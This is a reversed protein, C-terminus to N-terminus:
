LLGGVSASGSQRPNLTMGGSVDIVSGTMRGAAESILYNVARAVDTPAGVGGLVSLGGMYALTQANRFAPHGNDTYGPVVANVRIGASAAVVALNRTLSELATKTMAYIIDGPSSIHASASSINVISGGRSLRPLIGQCLFFPAKVNVTMYKEFQSSDADFFDPGLMLGANNVLGRLRLTSNADMLRFTAAVVDKVGHDSNLNARVPYCHGGMSAVAEVLDPMREDSRWYQAVIDFGDGALTRCIERGIGGSAGTVVVLERM